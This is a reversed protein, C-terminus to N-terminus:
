QVLDPPTYFVGHAKPSPHFAESLLALQELQKRLPTPSEPFLFGRLRKGLEEPLADDPSQFRDSETNEIWLFAHHLLHERIEEPSLTALRTNQVATWLKKLTVKGQKKPM